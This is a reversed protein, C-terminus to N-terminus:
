RKIKKTLLKYCKAAEPRSGALAETAYRSVGADTGMNLRDKLWANTTMEHRKMFAAIGVKWAISKPDASADRIKKDVVTLCRGLTAEWRLDRELRAEAYTRKIQPRLKRDDAAVLKQYDRSGIAWGKSMKEFAMEKRASKSEQLWTLYDDYKRRGVPGDKLSGAGTLCTQLNLFKPRGRKQQLFWYSSWRYDSLTAMPSLKGRVPNLHISHSLWAMRESDEVRLSKFRGQFLHGSEKRIGNFRRGFVSQVWRMGESLNGKPTELALHYHNSMICYAHLTWGARECGEFLTREFIEKAREDTFMGQRNNGRNLVHYCAGAEDMRLKRPM